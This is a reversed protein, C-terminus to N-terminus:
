FLYAFVIPGNSVIEISTATKGVKSHTIFNKETIEKGSFDGLEQLWQYRKIDNINLKEIFISNKFKQLNWFGM